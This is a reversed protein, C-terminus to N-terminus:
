KNKKKNHTTRETETHISIDMLNLIKLEIIINGKQSKKQYNLIAMLFAFIFVMPAVILAIVVYMM